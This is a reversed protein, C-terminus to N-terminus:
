HSGRLRQWPAYYMWLPTSGSSGDYLQKVAIEYCKEQQDNVLFAWLQDMCQTEDTFETDSWMELFDALLARRVCYQVCDKAEQMVELDGDPLQLRRNVEVASKLTPVAQVPRVILPAVTALCKEPGPVQRTFNRFLGTRGPHWIGGASTFLIWSNDGAPVKSLMHRLQQGSCSPGGFMVQHVKCLVARALGEAYALRPGPAEIAEQFDDLLKQAQDRLEEAAVYICLLTCEPPARWQQRISALTAQLRQLDELDWVEALLMANLQPLKRAAEAAEGEAQAEFHDEAVLQQSLSQLAKLGPGLPLHM